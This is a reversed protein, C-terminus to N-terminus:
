LFLQKRTSDGWKLRHLILNISSQSTNVTARAKQVSQECMRSHRTKTKPKTKMQPSQM